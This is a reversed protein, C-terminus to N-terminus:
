EGMQSEVLAFSLRYTPESDSDAIAHEEVMPIYGPRYAIVTFMKDSLWGPISCVSFRGQKDSFCFWRHGPMPPLPYQSDGEHITGTALSSDLGVGEIFICVSAGAVPVQSSSDYVQGSVCVFDEPGTQTVYPVDSCLAPSSMGLVLGCVCM